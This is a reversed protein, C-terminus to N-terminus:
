IAILVGREIGANLFQELEDLYKRSLDLVDQGPIDNFVHRFLIKPGTETSPEHIPTKYDVKEVTGDAKRLEISVSDSVSITDSMFMDITLDTAVPETHINLDRKDKFFRIQPYQKVADEYWGLANNSKAEEYAYQVASRAASLFASLEFHFNQPAQAEREMRNLFYRAENMKLEKRDMEPVKAM